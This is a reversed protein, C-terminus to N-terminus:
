QDLERGVVSQLPAKLDFGKLHLLTSNQDCCPKVPPKSEEAEEIVIVKQDNISEAFVSFYQQLHTIAGEPDSVFHDAVPAFWEKADPHPEKLWIFTTHVDRKGKVANVRNDMDSPMGDTLVILSQIHDKTRHALNWYTHDLASFINTDGRAEVMFWGANDSTCPRYETANWWTHENFAGIRCSLSEPLHDLLYHSDTVVQGLVDQMSGSVDLLLTVSALVDAEEYPKLSFAIANGDDDRLELSNQDFTMQNGQDDFVDVIYATSGDNRTVNQISIKGEDAIVTIGSTQDHHMNSLAASGQQTKLVQLQEWYEKVSFVKYKIPEDQELTSNFTIQAYAGPTVCLAMGLAAFALFPRM